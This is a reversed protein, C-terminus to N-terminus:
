GRAMAAICDRSRDISHSKKLDSGLQPYQIPTFTLMKCTFRGVVANHLMWGRTLLVLQHISLVKTAKMGSSYPLLFSALRILVIRRHLRHTIHPRAVLRACPVLVANEELFALNSHAHILLYLSANVLGVEM